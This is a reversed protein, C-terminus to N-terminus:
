KQCPLHRGPCRCPPYRGTPCHHIYLEGTDVVLLSGDADELVDAPHFDPDQTTVLATDTTRFTAGERDFRHQM